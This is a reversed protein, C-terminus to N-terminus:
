SWQILISGGIRKHDHRDPWSNLVMSPRIQAETKMSLRGSILWIRTRAGDLYAKGLTILTSM